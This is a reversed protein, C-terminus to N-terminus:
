RRPPPGARAAIWTASSASRVKLQMVTSPSVEVESVSSIPAVPALPARTQASVWAKRSASPITISSRACCTTRSPSPAVFNTSTVTVPAVERLSARRWAMDIALEGSTFVAIAPSSAFQPRTTIATPFDPAGASRSRRDIRNPSM